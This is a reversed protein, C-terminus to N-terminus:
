VIVLYQSNRRCFKGAIDNKSQINILKVKNFHLIKANVCACVTRITQAFEKM